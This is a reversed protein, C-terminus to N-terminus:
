ADKTGGAFEVPVGGGLEGDFREEEFQAPLPEALVAPEKATERAFFRVEADNDALIRGAAVPMIPRFILYFFPPALLLRFLALGVFPLPSREFAQCPGHVSKTVRHALRLYGRVPAFVFQKPMPEFPRLFWPPSAHGDDAWAHANKAAVFVASWYFGWLAFLTNSLWGFRGFAIALALPLAGIGFLLIGRFKRKYKKWLWSPSFRLRPSPREGEPLIGADLSLEHSVFDDFDRTFAIAIWEAAGLFALLTALRKKWSVTPAIVPATAAEREVADAVVAGVAAEIRDGEAAERANEDRLAKVAKKVDRESGRLHIGGSEIVIDSSAAPPRDENFGVALMGVATFLVVFLARALFLRGAARRLEPVTVLRAFLHFPLLFGYTLRRGGSVPTPPLPRRGRVHGYIGRVADREHLLPATVLTRLKRSGVETM